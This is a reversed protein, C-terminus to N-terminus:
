LNLVTRELRALDYVLFPFRSFVPLWRSVSAWSVPCCLTM